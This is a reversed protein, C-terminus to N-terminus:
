ILLFFLLYFIDKPKEKENIKRLEYLGYFFNHFDFTM